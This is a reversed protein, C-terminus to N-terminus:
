NLGSLSRLRQRESETLMSTTRTERDAVLKQEALVQTNDGSKVVGKVGVSTSGEALVPSKAATTKPASESLVRGVYTRYSEELKATPVNALIAAMVERSKGTLPTLVSELKISRELQATRKRETKLATESEELRQESESLRTEISNGDSKAMKKFENQFAEFISKGFELNRVEAIDDRLEDLEETLRIELFADLREVLQKVDSKLAKSLDSKHEVLRQAFEAELDRFREVDEKLEKLEDTLFSTAQTDLAEILVDREKIWTEHISATVQETTDKKAQEIAENLQSQFAAELELRSDETLINAELLKKFIENM